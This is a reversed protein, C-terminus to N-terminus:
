RPRKHSSINRWTFFALLLVAISAFVFISTEKIGYAQSNVVPNEPRARKSTRNREKHWSEPLDEKTIQHYTSPSDSAPDHFDPEVAWKGNPGTYEAINFGAMEFLTAINEETYQKVSIESDQTQVVALRFKPNEPASSVPIMSRTAMAIIRERGGRVRIETAAPLFRFTQVFDNINGDEKDSEVLKVYKNSKEQKRLEIWSHPINGTEKYYLLIAYQVLAARNQDPNRVVTARASTHLLTLLFIRVIASRLNYPM